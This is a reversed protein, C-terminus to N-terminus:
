PLHYHRHGSGCLVHDLVGFPYLGLDIRDKWLTNHKVYYTNRLAYYKQFYGGPPSAPLKRLPGM